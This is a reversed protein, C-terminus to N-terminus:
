SEVGDSFPLLFTFITGAPENQEAWIKGSHDEIIRKCIALGLGVGAGVREQQSGQVFKDFVIELQDEAIGRGQDVIRVKWAPHM